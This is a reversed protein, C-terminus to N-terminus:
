QVLTNLIFNALFFPPACLTSPAWLSWVQVELIGRGTSSHLHMYGKQYYWTVVRSSNGVPSARNYRYPTSKHSVMARPEGDGGQSILRPKKHVWYTNTMFRMTLFSDSAARAWLHVSISKGPLINWPSVSKRGPDPWPDTREESHTPRSCGLGAVTPWMWNFIFDINYPHSFFDKYQIRPLALTKVFFHSTKSVLSVSISYLKPFNESDTCDFLSKHLVSKWGSQYGSYFCDTTLM